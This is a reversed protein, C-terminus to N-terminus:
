HGMNCFQTMNLYSQLKTNIIYDGVIASYADGTTGPKIEFLLNMHVQSGTPTWGASQEFFTAPLSYSTNAAAAIDATGELNGTVSDLVFVRYIEPFQSYNHLVVAAPYATDLLSTHVNILLNNFDSTSLGDCLTMNEFFQSDANYIVSQYNITAFKSANMYFAVGQDGPYLATTGTLAYLIDRAGIQISAASPIFVAKIGYIHGTPMGVVTVAVNQLSTDVNFFRMYTNNGFAGLLIPAAVVYSQGQLTQSREVHPMSQQSQVASRAPAQSDLHGSTATLSLSLSAATGRKRM